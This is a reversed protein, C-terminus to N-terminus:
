FTRPLSEGDASPNYIGIKDPSPLKKRTNVGLFSNTNRQMKEANETGRRYIILAM